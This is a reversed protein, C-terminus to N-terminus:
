AARSALAPRRKPRPRAWDHVRGGSGRSMRLIVDRLMLVSGDAVARLGASARGNKAFGSSSMHHPFSTVVRATVPSPVFNDDSDCQLENAGRPTRIGMLAGLGWGAACSEAGASLQAV